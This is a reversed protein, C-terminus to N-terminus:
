CKCMKKQNLFSSNGVHTVLLQAVMYDELIDVIQRTKVNNSSSISVTTARFLHNTYYLCIVAKESMNQLTNDLSNHDLVCKEYWVMTENQNFKASLSKPRQFPADNVPNLPSLFSKITKVPCRPSSLIAFIKGESRDETGELGGSNNKSSLMTGLQSKNLEFYEERAGTVCLRLM